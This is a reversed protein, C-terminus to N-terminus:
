SHISKTTRFGKLSRWPVGPLPRPSSGLAGCARVGKDRMVVGVQCLSEVGWVCCFPSDRRRSPRIYPEPTLTRPHISTDLLCEDPLPSLVQYYRRRLTREVPRHMQYDQSECASVCKAATKMSGRASRDVTLLQESSPGFGKPTVSYYNSPSQHRERRRFGASSGGGQAGAHPLSKRGESTGERGTERPLAGSEREGLTTRLPSDAAVSCFTRVSRGGASLSDFGM